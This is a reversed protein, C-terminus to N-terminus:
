LVEGIKKLFYGFLFLRVAMGVEAASVGGGGASEGETRMVGFNYGIKERQQITTRWIKKTLFKGGNAFHKNKSLTIAVKYEDANIAPPRASAVGNRIRDGGSLPM